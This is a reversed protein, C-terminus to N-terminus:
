KRTTRHGFYVVNPVDSRAVAIDVTGDGNLDAVAFGYVTGKDDGVRITHYKRGTGDNFHVASPAEVNGVIIDPKGDGNVDAVALAYPTPTAGAVPIGDSRASRYRRWRTSTSTAPRDPPHSTM